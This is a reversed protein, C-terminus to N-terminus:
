YVLILELPKFLFNVLPHKCCYAFFQTDIKFLGCRSVKLFIGCLKFRWTFIRSRFTATTLHKTVTRRNEQRRTLIADSVRFLNGNLLEYYSMTAVNMGQKLLMSPNGLKEIDSLSVTGNM